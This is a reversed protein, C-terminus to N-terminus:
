KGKKRRLPCKDGVTWVFIYHRKSEAKPNLIEKNLYNVSLMKEVLDKLRLHEPWTMTKFYLDPFNQGTYSEDEALCTCVWRCLDDDSLDSVHPKDDKGFIAKKFRAYDFEGGTLFDGESFEVIMEEINM